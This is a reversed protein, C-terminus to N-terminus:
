FRVQSREAVARGDDGSRLTNLTGGSMVLGHHEEVAAGCGNCCFVKKEQLLVRLSACCM